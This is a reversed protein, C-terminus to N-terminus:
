ELSSYVVAVRCAKMVNYMHHPYSSILVFINFRRRQSVGTFRYGPALDRAVRYVQVDFASVCLHVDTHYKASTM